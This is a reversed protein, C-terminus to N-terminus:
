AGRQENEFEPLWPRMHPIWAPVHRSYEAYAGGFRRHLLPEEDFRVYLLQACVFASAWAFIGWSGAILADAFLLMFVGSIMPNYVNQHASPNWAQAVFDCGALEIGAQKLCFKVAEAPFAKTFKQRNFREEPSAAICEGDKVIAASSNIEGHNLGLIVM